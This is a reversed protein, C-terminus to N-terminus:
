AQLWIPTPMCAFTVTRPVHLWYHTNRTGLLMGLLKQMGQLDSACIPCRGQLTTLRQLLATSSMAGESIHLHASRRHGQQVRLFDSTISERRAAAAFSGLRTYM